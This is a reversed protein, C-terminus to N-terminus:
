CHCRNVILIYALKCYVGIMLIGECKCVIFVSICFLSQLDRYSGPHRQIVLFKITNLITKLIFANLELYFSKFFLKRECPATDSLIM